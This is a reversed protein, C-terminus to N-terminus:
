CCFGLTVKRGRNMGTDLCFSEACLAATERLGPFAPNQDFIVLKGWAPMEAPAKACPSHPSIFTGEVGCFSVRMHAHLLSVLYLCNRALCYLSVKLFPEQLSRWAPKEKMVLQHSFALPAIGRWQKHIAIGYSHWCKYWVSLWGLEGSVCTVNIISGSM